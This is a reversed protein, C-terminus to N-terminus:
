FLWNPNFYAEFAFLLPRQMWELCVVSVHCKVGNNNNSECIFLRLKVISNKLSSWMGWCMYSYMKLCINAVKENGCMLLCYTFHVIKKYFILVVRCVDM